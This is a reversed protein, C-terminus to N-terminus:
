YGALDDYAQIQNDDSILDSCFQTYFTFGKSESNIKFIDLEHGIKIIRDSLTKVKLVGNFTWTDTTENAKKLVRCNNALTTM